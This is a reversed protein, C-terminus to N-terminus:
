GTPPTSGTRPAQPDPLLTVKLPLTLDGLRSSTFRFSYLGTETLQIQQFTQVTMLTAYGEPEDGQLETGHLVGSNLIEGGPGVFDIRMEIQEADDTPEFLIGLVLSLSPHIAPVRQVYITDIGGGHVFLKGAVATAADALLACTVRM